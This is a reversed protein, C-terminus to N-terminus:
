LKVFKCTRDCDNESSVKLYYVGQRLDEINLDIQKNNAKTTVCRVLAGLENYITIDIDEVTEELLITLQNQAPNPYLYLKSNAPLLEKNSLIPASSMSGGGNTTKYIGLGCTYGVNENIMFVSEMTTNETFPLLQQYHWTNGGDKTVLMTSSISDYESRTCAVAYALKETVVDLDSIHQLQPLYRFFWSNAGDETVGICAQISNGSTIPYEIAGIGGVIGFDADLFDASCYPQIDITSINSSDPMWYWNDGRDFTKFWPGIYGISDNAFTVESGGPIQPCVYSSVIKQWYQGGDITKFFWHGGNGLKNVAFGRLSDLFYMSSFKETSYCPYQHYPQYITDWSDGGNTTKYFYCDSSGAYGLSDNVFRISYIPSIFLSTDWTQGGDHTRVIKGLGDYLSPDYYIGCSFGTDQNLFFVDYFYCEQYAYVSTWQSRASLSILFLFILLTYNKM